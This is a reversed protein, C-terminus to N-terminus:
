DRCQPFGKVEKNKWCPQDEVTPLGLTGAIVDHFDRINEINNEAVFFQYAAIAHAAIGGTVGLGVIAKSIHPALSKSILNIKDPNLANKSEQLFRALPGELKKAAADAGLIALGAVADPGIEELFQRVFTSGEEDVPAANESLVKKQYGRWNEFLKQMSIFLEM